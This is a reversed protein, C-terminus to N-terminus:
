APLLIKGLWGFWLLYGAICGSVGALLFTSKQGSPIFRLFVYVTGLLGAIGTFGIMLWDPWNFYIALRIEDAGSVFGGKILGSFLWILLIFVQRLWFLSLFAMVWQGPNLKVAGQVSRRHYWLLVLGLLGTVMTQLPGAMTILMRKNMQGTGDVPILTYVTSRYSIYGEYGM